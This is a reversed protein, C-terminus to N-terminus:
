RNGLESLSERDLMRIEGRGLDIWNRDKFKKLERTVVERVSGLAVAIEQHTVKLIGEENADNLLYQALRLELPDFAVDKVLNMMRILQFGYSEFVFKRFCDCSALGALFREKPLAMAVVSNEAIANAIYPTGSLLCAASLACNDGPSIRYLMIERGDSSLKQIRIRGELCFLYGRCDETERFIQHDKEFRIEKASSLIEMCAEDRVNFMPYKRVWDPAIIASM